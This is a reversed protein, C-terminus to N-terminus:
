QKKMGIVREPVLEVLTQRLAALENALARDDDRRHAEALRLLRAEVLEFLALLETRAQGTPNAGTKYPECARKVYALHEHVSIALEPEKGLRETLLLIQHLREGALENRGSWREALPELWPKETAAPKPALLLRVGLYAGGALAASLLIPQKAALVLVVFILIATLGAKLDAM